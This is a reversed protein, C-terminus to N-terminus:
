GFWSKNHKLGGEFHRQFTGDRVHGLSCRADDDTFHRMHMIKAIEYCKRGLENPKGPDQGRWLKDIYEGLERVAPDGAVRLKKLEHVLGLVAQRDSAECKEYAAVAQKVLPHDTMKHTNAADLIDSKTRYQAEVDIDKYTGHPGPEVSCAAIVAGHLENIKADLGAQMRGTDIIIPDALEQMAAALDRPSQYRRAHRPHTARQLVAALGPSLGNEICHAEVYGDTKKNTHWGPGAFPSIGKILYFALCGLSFVDSTEYFAPHGHSDDGEPARFGETGQATSTQGRPGVSGLDGIKYVPNGSELFVIVNNGKVDRHLLPKGDRGELEHLYAVGECLPNMIDILGSLDAVMNLGSDEHLYDVLNCSGLEMVLVPLPVEAGLKPVDFIRVINPHDVRLMADAENAFIDGLKSEYAQKGIKVAVPRNHKLDIGAYIDAFSGDNVWNDIRYRRRRTGPIKLNQTVQKAREVKMRHVEVGAM